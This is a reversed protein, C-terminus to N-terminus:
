GAGRRRRRGVVAVLGLLGIGLLAVASPEPVYVYEALLYDSIDQASGASVDQNYLLVAAIQGNLNNTSV